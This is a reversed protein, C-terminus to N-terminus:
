KRYRMTEFADVEIPLGEAWEPSIEMLKKFEEINGSGEAVIEDHVTMIIPFAEKVRLIAEAIIDRSLAQTINEALKGGYTRIWAWGGSYRDKGFFKVCPGRPTSDLEPRPYYLRRGSPLEIYAYPVGGVTLYGMSINRTVQVRGAKKAVSYVFGSGLRDWLKVIKPHRQRYASVVRKSFDEDIQVDYIEDLMRIFGKHGLGYGCGLEAQKGMFRENKMKKTIERGYIVSAMACYPDGKEQFLKIQERDDAAWAIGRAEIQAFDGVLLPGLIFGRAM